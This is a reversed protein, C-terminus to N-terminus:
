RGATNSAWLPSGGASYVVLNGDDQVALFAGANNETGTAWLPSGNRRYVVFNGDGQMIALHRERPHNAPTVTNSAWIAATVGPATVTYLVLNGDGQMILVHNGTPSTLSANERLFRNVGLIGGTILKPPPPLFQAQVQGALALLLAVGAVITNIREM